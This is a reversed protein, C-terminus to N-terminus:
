RKVELWEHRRDPHMKCANDNPHVWRHGGGGCWMLDNILDNYTPYQKERMDCTGCTPMKKMPPRVPNCKVLLNEKKNRPCYDSVECTHRNIHPTRRPCDSYVCESAHDCIFLGPKPKVAEAKALMADILWGDIDDGDRHGPLSPWLYCIARGRWDNVDTKTSTGQGNLFGPTLVNKALIGRRSNWRECAKKVEEDTM